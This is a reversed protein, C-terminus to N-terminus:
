LAGPDSLQHSPPLKTTCTRYSRVWRLKRGGRLTARLDVTYTGARRGRLDVRAFWRGDSRRRMVVVRKGAVFVQAGRVFSRARTSRASRACSAPRTAPAAKRSRIPRRSAM